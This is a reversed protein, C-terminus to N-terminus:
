ITVIKNNNLKISQIIKQANYYLYKFNTTNKSHFNDLLAKDILFMIQEETNYDPYDKKFRDILLKSYTRNEKITGDLSSGLKDKFYNTLNNIDERGYSVPKKIGKPINSDPKSDPKNDPIPEVSEHLGNGQEPIEMERNPSISAYWKTRDYKHKNYNGVKVYGKSILNNLIREIQRRSWFNFLEVFAEMSNYTWYHGDHNHKKNAKNKKCWFDINSFLIAEEVGIEKAILPDFQM